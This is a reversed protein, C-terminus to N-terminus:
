IHQMLVGLEEIAKRLADACREAESLTRASPWARQAYEWMSLKGERFLQSAEELAKREALSTYAAESLRRALRSRLARLDAMRGAVALSDAEGSPARLAELGGLDESCVYGGSSPLRPTLAKVLLEPSSVVVCSGGTPEVVSRWAKEHKGGGLLVVDVIVRGGFGPVVGDPRPGVNCYEDTVVVVRFFRSLGGGALVGQALSFAARLAVGSPTAGVCGLGRLEAEVEGWSSRVDGLSTLGLIPRVRESVPRPRRGREDALYALVVRLLGGRTRGM